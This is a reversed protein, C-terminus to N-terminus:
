FVILTQNWTLKNTNQRLQSSPIAPHVNGSHINSFQVYDQIMNTNQTPVIHNLMQKTHQKTLYYGICIYASLNM